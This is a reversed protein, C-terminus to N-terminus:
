FSKQYFLSNINQVTSGTYRDFRYGVSDTKTVDYWAGVREIRTDEQGVNISKRWRYEAKVTFGTDALPVIVSPSYTYYYYNASSMKEGYSARGQLTAFGLPLKGILGTEVRDQVSHTAANHATIQVALNEVDASINKNFDHNYKFFIDNSTSTNGAEVGHGTELIVFDALSLGTTLALAFALLLKKM